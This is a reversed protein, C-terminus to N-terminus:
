RAWFGLEGGGADRKEPADLEWLILHIKGMSAM